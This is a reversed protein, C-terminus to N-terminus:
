EFGHKAEFQTYMMLLSKYSQPLVLKNLCAHVNQFWPPWTEFVDWGVVPSFVPNYLLTISAEVPVANNQLTMHPFTFAPDHCPGDLNFPQISQTATAGSDIPTQLLVPDIPVETHSVSPSSTCPLLNTPISQEIPAPPAPSSVWSRGYNAM